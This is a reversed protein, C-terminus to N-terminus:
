THHGVRDAPADVEGPRHALDLLKRASQNRLDGIPDSDRGTSRSGIPQQATFTLLQRRGPAPPKTM